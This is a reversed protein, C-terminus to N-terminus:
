EATKWTKGGYRFEAYRRVKSEAPADLRDL